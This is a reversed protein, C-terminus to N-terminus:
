SCTLGLGHQKTKSYYSGLAQSNLEAVHTERPLQIRLKNAQARDCDSMYGYTDAAPVLKKLYLGFKNLNLRM